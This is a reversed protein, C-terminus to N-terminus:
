EGNEIRKIYCYFAGGLKDGRDSYLTSNFSHVGAPLEIVTSIGKDALGIPERVVSDNIKM